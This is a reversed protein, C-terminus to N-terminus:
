GLHDDVGGPAAIQADGAMGLAAADVGIREHAQEGVAGPRDRDATTRAAPRASARLTPSGRMAFPELGTGSTANRRVGSISSPWAIWSARGPSITSTSRECKVVASPPDNIWRQRTLSRRRASAACGRSVRRIAMTAGGGQETGGLPVEDRLSDVAVAPPRVTAPPADRRRHAELPCVDARPSCWTSARAHLGALQPVLPRLHLDLRHLVGGRGRTSPAQRAAALCGTFSTYRDLDVDVTVRPQTGYSPAGHRTVEAGSDRIIAFNPDSPLRDLLCTTRPDRLADGYL